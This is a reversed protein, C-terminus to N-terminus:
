FSDRHTHGNVLTACIMCVSVTYIYMNIFDLRFGVVVGHGFFPAVKNKAM